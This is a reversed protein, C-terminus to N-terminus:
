SIADIAQGLGIELDFARTAAMGALRSLRAALQGLAESGAPGLADCLEGGVDPADPALARYIADESLEIKPLASEFFADVYGGRLYGRVFAKARGVAGSAVHGAAERADRELDGITEGGIVAQAALVAQAAERGAEGIFAETSTIAPALLATYGDDLLSLLYDRDAQTASHSSFPLRRPRVLELIERAARRLLENQHRVIRARERDAVEASFRAARTEIAAAAHSLQHRSAVAQEHERQYIRAAEAAIVNIRRELAQRKLQRAHGFFRSELAETIAGFNGAGSDAGSATLAERASVPIVAEVLGDLESSLHAVVAERDSAQLQDIKNIVGLVRVGEGRIEALAERETQKGAQSASFVWVVADARTIFGRATEEHAPLISNLGPTDVLCVPRLSEEPLLIEVTEIREAAAADLGRLASQLSEWSLTETRGDRGLIRGGRERGYKVMNITATTPSIGMPAVEDGILANIFTSKGSSFEGMITVLLPQDFDAAARAAVPALASLEPQRTCLEAVERILRYAEDGERAHLLATNERERAAALLTRGESHDPALRLGALAMAVARTGAAPSPDAVLELRGLAFRADASGTNAIATEFTAQAGEINGDRFLATGRAVLAHPDNEDRALLDNALRVANPTDGADVAAGLARRIIPEGGGLDVARLFSELAAQASKARMHVDGIRAYVDASRPAKELARLFYAHAAAADGSALAADGLGLLARTHTSSETFAGPSAELAREFLGAKETAPALEGLIVLALPIEKAREAHRMAASATEPGGRLLAEALHARAWGDDPAETVAKRLERVAKDTDGARLHAIGLGRYAQALLERDGGAASQGARFGAIAEDTQGLLLKATARGVMAEPIDATALAGDFAAIAEGADGAELHCAGLLSLAGAHDPREGLVEELLPRAKETRGEGVLDRAARLKALTEDPVIEGYLEELRREIRSWM